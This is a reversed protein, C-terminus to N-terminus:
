LTKPLIGVTKVTPPIGVEKLKEILSTFNYYHKDPNTLTATHWTVQELAYVYYKELIKNEYVGEFIDRNALYLLHGLEGLSKLVSTIEEFSFDSYQQKTEICCRTQSEPVLSSILKTYKDIWNCTNGWNKIKAEKRQEKFYSKQKSKWFIEFDRGIGEFVFNWDEKDKLKRVKPFRV